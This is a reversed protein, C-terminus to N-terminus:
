GALPTRHAVSLTERGRRSATKSPNREEEAIARRVERSIYNSFPGLDLYLGMMLGAYRLSKPNKRALQFATSWFPRWVGPAFGLRRTARWLAKLELRKQRAQIKFPRKSSDLALGVRLVRDFYANPKYISEIVQLYDRLIETRPRITVFNLGTTCHDGEGDGQRDFDEHLRGEARLRRVLQTNPTAALMGAMVAPISAAEICEVMNPAVDQKESDFGVIMGAIVFMGHAYIKQVSQAISRHANQPKQTDILTEEDPSEIGIFISFFGVEQMTKMLEIDDALNITASTTFEFPWDHAEQWRKIEPLVQKVLKKNGIFNDDLFSVHGRYGLDYVKQMERVIQEPTKARPVRGFLEIIDCFECNFPCGRSWQLGIYSYRDLKILEFRPVPTTQVNAKAESQYIKKPAGAALDELFMPLTVEGEGLVLHDADAYIHPSSTPDPGGVVVTKGIAKIRQILELCDPQQAIMTGLFVIDAERIASDELPEVNRDVLRVDWDEPLMAGVTCLGLPPTTYRADTLKCTERFNWFSPARFEPYILLAKM